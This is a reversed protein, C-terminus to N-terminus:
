LDLPEILARLDTAGNGYVSLRIGEDPYAIALYEGDPGSYAYVPNSNRTMFVPAGDSPRAELNDVKEYGFVIVGKKVLDQVSDGDTITKQVEPTAYFLTTEGYFADRKVSALVHGSALETAHESDQMSGALAAGDVAKAGPPEPMPPHSLGAIEEGRTADGGPTTGVLARLREVGTGVDSLLQDPMDGFEMPPQVTASAGLAAVVAMAPIVLELQM